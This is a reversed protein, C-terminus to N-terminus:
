SQRTILSEGPDDLVLGASVIHWATGIVLIVRAAEVVPLVITMPENFGLIGSM